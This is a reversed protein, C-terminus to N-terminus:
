TLFEPNMACGDLHDLMPLWRCFSIVFSVLSSSQWCAFRSSISSFLGKSTKSEFSQLNQRLPSNQILKFCVLDAQLELIPYIFGTSFQLLFLVTTESFFTVEFLMTGYDFTWVYKRYQFIVFIVGLDELVHHWTIVFCFILYFGNECAPVYFHWSPKSIDFNILPCFKFM